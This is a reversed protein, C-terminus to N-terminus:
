HIRGLMFSLLLLGLLTLLAMPPRHLLLRLGPAVELLRGWFPHLGDCPTRVEVRLVTTRGPSSPLRLRSRSLPTEGGGAEAFAAARGRLPPSPAPRRPIRNM